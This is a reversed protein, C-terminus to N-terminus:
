GDLDALRDQLARHVGVYIEVQDAVPAAPLDVLSALAEDVAPDGTRPLDVPASSRGDDLSM